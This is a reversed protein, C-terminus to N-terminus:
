DKGITELSSVLRHSIRKWDLDKSLSRSIHGYTHCNERNLRFFNIKEALCDPSGASIIFGNEGDVVHQSAGVQDTVIVPLGSAMAELVTLGFSEHLSPLIFLDAEKYSLFPTGGRLIVDIHFSRLKKILLELTPKFYDIVNGHLIIKCNTVGSMMLASLLIDIGKEVGINGVFVIVFKSNVDKSSSINPKFANIDVGLPIFFLKHSSIGSKLYSNLVLNSICWVRDCLDIERKQIAIREPLVQQYNIGRASFAKSLISNHESPHLWQSHLVCIGGYKKIVKFSHESSVGRGIFILNEDIEDKFKYLKRALWKDFDIQAILKQEELSQIKLMRLFKNKAKSFFVKLKSHNMSIKRGAFDECSDINVGFWCIDYGQQYINKVLPIDMSRPAGLLSIDAATAFFIKIRRKM